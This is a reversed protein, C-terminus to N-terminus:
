DEEMGFNVFDIPFNFKDIGVLVNEITTWLHHEEVQRKEM